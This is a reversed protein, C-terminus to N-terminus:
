CSRWAQPIERNRVHIYEPNSLSCVCVRFVFVPGQMEDPVCEVEDRCTRNVIDERSTQECMVLENTAQVHHVQFM